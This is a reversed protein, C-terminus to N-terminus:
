DDNHVIHVIKSVHQSETNRNSFLQEDLRLQISLLLLCYFSLNERGTRCADEPGVEFELM